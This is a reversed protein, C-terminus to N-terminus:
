AKLSNLSSDKYRCNLTKVHLFGWEGDDDSWSNAGHMNDHTKIHGKSRKKYGGFVFLSSKM